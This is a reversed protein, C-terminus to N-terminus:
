CSAGGMGMCAALAGRGGQAGQHAEGRQGRWDEMGEWVTLQARPAKRWPRQHQCTEAVRPILCIAADEKQKHRLLVYPWLCIAGNTQSVPPM